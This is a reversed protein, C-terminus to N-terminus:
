WKYSYQLYLLWPPTPNGTNQLFFGPNLHAFGFLVDHHQNIHFNTLFDYEDGVHSGSAGTADQRIPAGAANYLADRSQALTFHHYQFICTMWRLPQISAQVNLDNINQRGVLDLAGFYYHGFPFLQRYTHVAGPGGPDPNGTAYEDYVWFTPTMPMNKFRYGFGLAGAFAGIATNAQSGTQAIAELDYLFRGDQDGAWRTGLTIVDFGGVQGNAGTAVPRPDHLGLVYFDRTTGKKPKYTAWFGWFNQPLDWWDMQTASPIVPKMWFADVDWKPGHRFVKAGQFTRRTNAWDLPSIVRQSGYLLEQRGVRAYIPVGDNEWVKVDLFLNLIDAPNQDIRLPALAQTTSHAEIFEIYARFRDRFWLDAWARTRILGYQNNVGTARSSIEDMFRYRFEGGLTLLWNDRIHIRKLCDLWDHQTNKPDELYRYDYDFGSGPSPSIPPYPFKPPTERCNHLLLDVLSYYGCGDRPVTFWGLRPFPTVPPVKSWDVCKRCPAEVLPASTDTAASKEADAPPASQAPEATKVPEEELPMPPLLIPKKHAQVRDRYQITGYPTPAPEQTYASGALVFMLLTTGCVSRRM